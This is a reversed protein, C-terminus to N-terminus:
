ESHIPCIEPFQHRRTERERERVPNLTPARSSTLYRFIGKSKWPAFTNKRHPPLPPPVPSPQHKVRQDHTCPVLSLNLVKGRKKDKSKNPPPQTTSHLKIIPNPTISPQSHCIPAHYKLHVSLSRFLLCGNSRSFNPGNSHNPTTVNEPRPQQM